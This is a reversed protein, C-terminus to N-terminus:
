RFVKGVIMVRRGDLKTFEGFCVTKGSTVIMRSEMGSEHFEPLKITNELLEGEKNLERLTVKMALDVAVDGKGAFPVVVIEYGLFASDIDIRGNSPNRSKPFRLETGM